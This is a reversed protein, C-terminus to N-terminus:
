GSKKKLSEVIALSFTAEILVLVSLWLVSFLKSLTGMLYRLLACWQMNMDWNQKGLNALVYNGHEYNFLTQVWVVGHFVECLRCYNQM